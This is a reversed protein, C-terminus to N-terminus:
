TYLNGHPVRFLTLEYGSGENFQFTRQAKAYSANKGFLEKDGYWKEGSTWRIEFTGSPVDIEQSVGAPLYYMLIVEGNYPDVVKIVYNADHSTNIKLVSDCRYKPRKIYYAFDPLEEVGNLENLTVAEEAAASFWMTDAPFSKESKSKPPDNLHIYAPIMWSYYAITLSTFITAVFM